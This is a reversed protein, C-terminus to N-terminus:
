LRWNGSETLRYDNEMHNTNTGKKVDHSEGKVDFDDSSSCQDSAKNLTDSYGPQHVTHNEGSEDGVIGDGPDSLDSVVGIPISDTDSIDDDGCTRKFLRDFEEPSYFGFGEKETGVLAYVRDGKDFFLKEKSFDYADEESRSQDCSSVCHGPGTGLATDWVSALQAGM